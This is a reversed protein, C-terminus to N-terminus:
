GVITIKYTRSRTEHKKEFGIWRGERKKRGGLFSALYRLQTTRNQSSIGLITGVLVKEEDLDLLKAFVVQNNQVDEGEEREEGESVDNAWRLPIM